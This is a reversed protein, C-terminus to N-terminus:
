EIGGFLEDTVLAPNKTFTGGAVPAVIEFGVPCTNLPNAPPKLSLFPLGAVKRNSESSPAMEPHFGASPNPGPATFPDIATSM